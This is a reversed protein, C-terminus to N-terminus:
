WLGAAIVPIAYNLGGRFKEIGGGPLWDCTRNMRFSFGSARILPVCLRAWTGNDVAGGRPKMLNIRTLVINNGM